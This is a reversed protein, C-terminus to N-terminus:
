SIEEQKRLKRLRDIFAKHHPYDEEFKVLMSCQFDDCQSCNDLKKAECCPLISCASSWHVEMSGYCGQCQFWELKADASGHERFSVALEEAKDKDHAAIFIPCKLCNAGCPALSLDHKMFGEKVLKDIVYSM